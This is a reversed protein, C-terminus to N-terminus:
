PLVQEVILGIGDIQEGVRKEGSQVRNCRRKYVAFGVFIRIHLCSLAIEHQSSMAREKSFYAMLIQRRIPM